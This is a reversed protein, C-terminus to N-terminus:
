SGPAPEPLAVSIAFHYPSQFGIRTVESKTVGDFVAHGDVVRVGGANLEETEVVGPEGETVVAPVESEGADTTLNRVM